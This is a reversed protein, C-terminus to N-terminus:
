KSAAQGHGRAAEVLIDGAVQLSNKSVRELRDETTQRFRNRGVRRVPDAGGFDFDCLLAAPIGARLFPIHDNRVAIPISDEQSLEFRDRYGLHSAAALLAQAVSGTSRLDDTFMLDEDGIMDCVIVTRISKAEGSEKAREAFARSGYLGHRPGSRGLAEKGDFFAFRVAPRPEMAGMVRACELLVAAGSAGENAGAFAAVGELRKTDLHTALLVYPGAAAGRLHASINQLNREGGPTQVRVDEIEVVLGATELQERVYTRAMALADSGLPRPGLRALTQLHVLARQADFATRALLAPAPAAPQPAVAPPKATVPADAGVDFLRRVPEFLLSIIRPRETVIEASLTLGARLAIEDPGAGGARQVALRAKFVSAGTKPDVTPELAVSELRAELVGFREFPYADLKLKCPAGPRLSGADRNAFTAVAAVLPSTAISYAHLDAEVRDGPVIPAAFSVLGGVPAHLVLLSLVRKSAAIETELKEVEAQATERSARTRAAADRLSAQASELRSATAAVREDAEVTIVTLAEGAERLLARAALVLGRQADREAIGAEYAQRDILKKEFLTAARKAASEDRLLTAEATTLAAQKAELRARELQIRRPVITKRHRIERNHADRAARWDEIADAAAIEAVPPAQGTKLLAQLAAVTEDLTTRQSQARELDKRLRDLRGREAADELRLLLQGARVQEGEGAYVEAVVGATSLRVDSREDVAVLEGRGVVVRDVRVVTAFTGIAGLLLLLLWLLM